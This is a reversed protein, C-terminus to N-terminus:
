PVRQEFEAGHQHARPPQHLHPAVGGEDAGGVGGGDGGGGDAAVADGGVRDGVSRGEAIDGVGDEGDKM